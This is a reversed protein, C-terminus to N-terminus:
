LGVGCMGSKSLTHLPSTFGTHRPCLSSSLTSAQLGFLVVDPLARYDVLLNLKINRQSLFQKLFSLLPPIGLHVDLTHICM